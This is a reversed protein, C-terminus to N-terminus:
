ELISALQDTKDRQMDGNESRPRDTQFEFYLRGQTFQVIQRSLIREQVVWGRDLLPSNQVGDVIRDARVQAYFHGRQVGWRGRYPMRVLRSSAQRPLFCGKTGDKAGTAAITLTSEQYTSFFGGFSACSKQIFPSLSVLDIEVSPM